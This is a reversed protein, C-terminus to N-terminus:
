ASNVALLVPCLFDVQVDLSAGIVSSLLDSWARLTPGTPMCMVILKQHSEQQHHKGGCFSFYMAHVTFLHVKTQPAAQDQAPAASGTTIVTNNSPATVHPL